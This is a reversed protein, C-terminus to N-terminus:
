PKLAGVSPSTGALMGLHTDAMGVSGSVWLDGTNAQFAMQWGGAALAAAGPSTGALMGAHSNWNGGPWYEWFETTNAQFAVLHHPGINGGAISPSTGSHMGLHTDVTGETGSTWLDGTNAQYAMQWGGAALAAASPSTGPLMGAHSTWSGGPWWEWFETNRAQFAVLYRPASNGEAISPSTGALMGMQTDMTGASGTVWLNGTNAQFAVEYGGGVLAAISPSTGALMGLHTDATGATGTVWLDGNSGQYAVEYGRGGNGLAIVGNPTGLGTPGDWGAGATCLVAPNCNGNAGATVDFLRSPHAYPYSAAFPGAGAWQDPDGALAYTSAIIPSAVSTGGAVNWGGFGFSDYVGVGTNPDAVASVDALARNGCGTNVNQWSPRPDFASCGSGAGSWATEMWGRGGGARTLSTGGVATVFQSAAPYQVGFGNDGTSATIVTGPHHFYTTDASTQGSFEGGGYSNSVFRAKLSVATNVSSFLDSGFSSNAEVLLIRCNPCVASVMDIDISIEFAWLADPAPLPGAAGNQNVKRFCGNATTCPSIGVTSRYVGLDAEATPDDFADVIAVTAQSGLTSSPLDYASQLDAPGYGVPTTGPLGTPANRRVTDVRRFSLCRSQDPRAPRACVQQVGGITPGPRTPNAGAPSTGAPGSALAGAASSLVAVGAVLASVVLRRLM